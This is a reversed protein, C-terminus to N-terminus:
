DSVTLGSMDIRRFVYDEATTDASEVILDNDMIYEHIIVYALTGYTHNFSLDELNFDGYTDQYLKIAKFVCYGNVIAIVDDKDMSQTIYTDLILHLGDDPIVWKGKKFQYPCFMEKINCHIKGEFTTPFGNADVPYNIRPM